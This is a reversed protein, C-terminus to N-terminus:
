SAAPRSDFVSLWSRMTADRAGLEVFKAVILRSDPSFAPRDPEIPAPSSSRSWKAAPRWTSVRLPRTRLGGGFGMVGNRYTFGGGLAALKGNPSLATAM